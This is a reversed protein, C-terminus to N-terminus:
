WSHVGGLCLLTSGHIFAGLVFFLAAMFLAAMFSRGRFLSSHQWSHLGVEINQDNKAYVAEGSEPDIMQITRQSQLERMFEKKDIDGSGDTDARHCFEIAQDLTKPKPSLTSPKRWHRCAVKSSIL